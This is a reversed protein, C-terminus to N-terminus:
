LCKEFLMRRLNDINNIKELTDFSIHVSPESKSILYTNDHGALKDAERGAFSKQNFQFYTCPSGQFTPNLIVHLTFAANVKAPLIESEFLNRAYYVQAHRIPAADIQKCRSLANHAVQSLLNSKELFYRHFAIAPKLTEFPLESTFIDLDSPCLCDEIKSVELLEQAESSLFQKQKELESCNWSLIPTLSIFGFLALSGKITMTSFLFPVTLSGLSITCIALYSIKTLLHLKWLRSQLHSSAANLNCGILPHYKAPIADSLISIM